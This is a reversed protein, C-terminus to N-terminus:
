LPKLGIGGSFELVLNRSLGKTSSDALNRKTRVFELSIVGNM